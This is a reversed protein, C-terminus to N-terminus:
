DLIFLICCPEGSDAGKECLKLLLFLFIYGSVTLNLVAAKMAPNNLQIANSQVPVQSTTDVEQPNILRTLRTSQKSGHM